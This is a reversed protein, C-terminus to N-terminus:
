NPDLLAEKEAEKGNFMNLPWPSSKNTRMVAEFEKTEHRYHSDNQKCTCIQM